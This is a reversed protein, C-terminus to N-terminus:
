HSCARLGSTVAFFVAQLSIWAQRFGDVQEVTTLPIGAVVTELLEPVLGLTGAPWQQLPQELRCHGLQVQLAAVQSAGRHQHALTESPQIAATILAKPDCQDGQALAQAAPQRRQLVTSGGVVQRTGMQLQGPLM